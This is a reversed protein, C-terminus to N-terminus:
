RMCQVPPLALRRWSSEADFAAADEDPDILGALFNGPLARWRQATNGSSLFASIRCSQSSQSTIRSASRTTSEGFVAWAFALEDIGIFHGVHGFGVISVIASSQPQGTGVLANGPV